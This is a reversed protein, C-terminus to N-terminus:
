AGYYQPTFTAVIILDGAATAAELAVGIVQRAGAADAIVTGDTHQKVREGKAIVGGAKLRVPAQLAGLIGVSSKGATTAGELIVGTSATTASSSITATDGSFTVTYGEKDVHTASPTLPIISSGDYLASAM